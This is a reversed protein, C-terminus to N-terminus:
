GLYVQQREGKRRRPKLLEQVVNRTRNEPLSIPRFWNRTFRPIGMANKKWRCLGVVGKMSAIVPYGLRQVDHTERHAAQSHNKRPLYLPEPFLDNSLLTVLMWECLNMQVSAGSLPIMTSVRYTKNGIDPLGLGKVRSGVCDACPSGSSNWRWKSSASPGCGNNVM